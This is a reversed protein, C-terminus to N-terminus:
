RFVRQNTVEALQQSVNWQEALALRICKVMCKWAKKHDLKLLHRDKELPDMTLSYFTADATSIERQM